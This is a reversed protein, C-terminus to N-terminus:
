EAPKYHDILNKVFAGEQATNTMMKMVDDCRLLGPAFVMGLNSSGMRTISAHRAMEQLFTILFWIVDRSLQPIRFSIIELCAAPDNAASVCSDYIKNPILPDRLERFWLKLAGGLDNPDDSTIRYDMKNFQKKLRNIEDNKGPVRFIGETKHGDKDLIAQAL